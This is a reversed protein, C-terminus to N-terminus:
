SDIKKNGVKQQNGAKKSNGETQQNGVKKYTWSIQQNGVKRNIASCLSQIFLYSILTKIGDKLATKEVQTWGFLLFNKILEAVQFLNFVSGLYFKSMEYNSTVKYDQQLHEFFDDRTQNLPM